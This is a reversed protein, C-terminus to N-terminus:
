SRAPATRRRWRSPGALAPRASRLALAQASPLAMGTGPAVESVLTVVQILATEHAGPWRSGPGALVPFLEPAWTAHQDAPLQVAPPAM